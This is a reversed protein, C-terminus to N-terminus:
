FIQVQPLSEIGKLPSELEKFSMKHVTGKM